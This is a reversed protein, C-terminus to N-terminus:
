ARYDASLDRIMEDLEFGTALGLDRAPKSRAFIKRLFTKARETVDRWPFKEAIRSIRQFGGSM